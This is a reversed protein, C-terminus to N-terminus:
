KPKATTSTTSPILLSRCAALAQRVNPDNRDLGALMGGRRTTTASSTGATTSSGAGAGPNPLTVGHDMMCKRFAARTGSNFGAGRLGGAPRLKRCAKRAAAFNASQNPDRTQGPTRRTVGHQLLCQRYAAFTQQPNSKSSSSGSHCATLAVTGVIILVSVRRWRLADRRPPNDNM